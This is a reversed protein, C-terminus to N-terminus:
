RRRSYPKWQYKATLDTDQAKMPRFSFLFDLLPSRKSSNRQLLIKM